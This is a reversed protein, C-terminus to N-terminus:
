YGKDLRHAPRYADAVMTQPASSSSAYNASIVSSSSQISASEQDLYGSVILVGAILIAGVWSWGSSSSDDDDFKETLRMDFRPDSTAVENKPSASATALKMTTSEFHAGSTESILRRLPFRPFLIYTFERKLITEQKYTFLALQRPIVKRKRTRKDACAGPEHPGM